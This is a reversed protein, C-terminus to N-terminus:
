SSAIMLDHDSMLFEERMDEMISLVKTRNSKALKSLEEGQGHVKLLVAEKVSAELAEDISQEAEAARRAGNYYTEANKLLMAANKRALQYATPEEGLRHRLLECDGRRLHIKPLNQADPLKTAATLDNIAKTLRKWRIDNLQALDTAALGNVNFATYISTNFSILADARDCLGQPSKSFDLDNNFAADLERQYTPLDIRGARFSADTYASIFNARAMTVEFGKESGVMLDAAKKLIENSYEEIWALGNPDETVLLSCLSTMTEIQAITTDLLTSKTTPRIISAWQEDESARSAPSDTRSLEDQAQAINSASIDAEQEQEQTQSYQFEQVSLCRQFLELAEQFAKLAEAKNVRLSASGESLVEGLSTLVQACNSIIILLM